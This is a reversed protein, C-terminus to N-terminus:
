PMPPMGQAVKRGGGQKTRQGHRPRPSWSATRADPQHRPTPMRPTGADPSTMRDWRFRPARDPRELPVAYVGHADGTAFMHRSRSCQTVTHRGEPGSGRRLRRRCAASTDVTSARVDSVGRRRKRGSKRNTGQKLGRPGRRVIKGCQRDAQADHCGPRSCVPPRKLAHAM